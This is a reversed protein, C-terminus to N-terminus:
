PQVRRRSRYMAMEVQKSFFYTLYILMHTAYCFLSLVVYGFSVLHGLPDERTINNFVERNSKVSLDEQAACKIRNILPQTSSYEEPNHSHAQKALMSDEDHLLVATGTCSPLICKLYTRTNARRRVRYKFGEQVYVKTRVQINGEEESYNPM